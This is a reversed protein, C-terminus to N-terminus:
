EWNLDKKILSIFAIYSVYFPYIISLLPILFINKNKTFYKGSIYLFIFDILIKTGWIIILYFTLKHIFISVFFLVIISFNAILVILSSLITDFDKYSKSKSAWRIRQKFFSKISKEAETYVIADKSKLYHINNLYKKKINHLLFVDDGSIEKYKLADNFEYFVNKEYILNAGNCMTPHKIGTAGATSATLSLFDITQLKQLFSKGTMLVPAIIM